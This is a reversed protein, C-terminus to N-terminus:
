GARWYLGIWVAPVRRYRDGRRGTELVVVKIRGVPLKVVRAPRRRVEVVGAGPRHDYPTEAIDVQQQRFSIKFRAVQRIRSRGDVHDPFPRRVTSRIRGQLIGSGRRGHIDRGTVHRQIEDQILAAPLKISLTDPPPVQHSRTRQKFPHLFPIRHLGPRM